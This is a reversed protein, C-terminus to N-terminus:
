RYKVGCGYAKTTSTEVAKGAMLADLAAAVYNTAKAIDKPNASRISDIAGQYVLKGEPNIIFMHPTTQAGYAHGVTGDSDHLIATAHSHHSQALAAEQQANKYDNHGMNTSNISLWIVGEDTYKQQLAQMNGSGYHKKVFPCNHNLWELVVYKGSFDSLHHVQGDIDTLTFDPAPEGTEVAQVSLFGFSIIATVLSLLNRIKMLLIIANSKFGSEGSARM